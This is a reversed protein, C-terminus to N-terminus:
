LGLQIPSWDGQKEPLAIHVNLFPTEPLVGSPVRQTWHNYVYNAITTGVTAGDVVSKNFHVGGYMRALQTQHVIDSFGTYNVTYVGPPDCSPSTSGRQLSFPVDDRGFFTRLIAAATATSTVSGSPYEAHPPTDLFPTWDPIPAHDPDGARYAMVPRWFWFGHQLNTLVVLADHMAVSLKAFLVVTDYLSSDEPVLKRTIAAWTTEIGCPNAGPVFGCPSVTQASRNWDLPRHPGARGIVKLIDYQEDWEKSPVKAPQIQSLYTPIFETVPDPVLFPKATTMTYLIFTAADRGAPTDNLYRYVGPILHKDGADLAAKFAQLSFERAPIHKQILALAVTEGLRKGLREESDSLKLANLQSLLLPDIMADLDFPFYNALIKHSAYAVVAQM